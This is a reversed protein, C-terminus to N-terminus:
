RVPWAPTNIAVGRKLNAELPARCAAGKRAARGPRYWSRPRSRGQRDCPVAETAGSDRVRMWPRKMEQMRREAALRRELAATGYSAASRLRAPEMGPGDRAWRIGLKRIKAEGHGKNRADATEQLM